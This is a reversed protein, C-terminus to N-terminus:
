QTDRGGARPARAAAGPARGGTGTTDQDDTLVTSLNSQLRLLLEALQQRETRSIGARLQRRLEQDIELIPLAMERGTPTAVVLWVRRDHTDPQRELLRKRELADIV